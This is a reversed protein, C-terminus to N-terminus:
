DYIIVADVSFSPSTGSVSLTMTVLENMPLPMQTLTTASGNILAVTNVDTVYITVNTPASTIPTSNVTVTQNSWSLQITLGQGTSFTGSAASILILIKMRKKANILNAGTFNATLPGSIGYLAAPLFPATTRNSALILGNTTSFFWALKTM